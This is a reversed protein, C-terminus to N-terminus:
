TDIQAEQIDKIVSTSFSILLEKYSEYDQVSMMDNEFNEIHNNIVKELGPSSVRLWKSSDKILNIKDLAYNVYFIGSNGSALKYHAPSNQIFDFFGDIFKPILVERMWFTEKVSKKALNFNSYISYAFTVLSIVIATFAFIDSLSLDNDKPPALNIISPWLIFHHASVKASFSMPLIFLGFAKIKCLSM